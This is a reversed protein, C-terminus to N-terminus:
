RVAAWGGVQPSSAYGPPGATTSMGPQPQAAFGPPMTAGQRTGAGALQQQQQPQHGHSPPVAPSAAPPMLPPPPGYPGSAAVAIPLGGDMSSARSPQSNTSPGSGGGLGYEGARPGLEAAYPNSPAEDPIEVGGHDWGPPHSEAVDEPYAYSGSHNGKQHDSGRNRQQQGRQAPAPETDPLAYMQVIIDFVEELPKYQKWDSKKVLVESDLFTEDELFARMEQGTFPGEVEGRRKTQWEREDFYGVARPKRGNRQQQAPVKAKGNGRGQQQRGSTRAPAPTVPGPKPPTRQQKPSPNSNRQQLGTLAATAASKAAWANTPAPAKLPGGSGLSPFDEKVKVAERAKSLEVWGMTGVIRVQQDPALHKRNLWQQLHELTFPGYVVSDPGLYEWQQSEEPTLSPQRNWASQTM